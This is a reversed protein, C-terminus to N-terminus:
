VGRFLHSLSVRLVRAIKHLVRLSPNVKGKEIRALYTRDMHAGFSIEEQSKRRAKRITVIRLGLRNYFFDGRMFFTTAKLQQEPTLVKRGELLYKTGKEQIQARM